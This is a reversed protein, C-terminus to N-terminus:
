FLAQDAPHDGSGPLVVDPPPEPGADNDSHSPPEPGVPGGDEVDAKAQGVPEQTKKPRGRKKKPAEPEEGFFAAPQDPEVRITMDSGIASVAQRVQQGNDPDIPLRKILRKMPAKGYMEEPWQEYTSGGSPSSKRVKMLTDHDMVYVHTTGNTMEAFAYAAIIEGRNKLAKKHEVWDRGGSGELYDFHDNEFAAGWKVKTFVGTRYLAKAIGPAGIVFVAQSKFPILSCDGQSFSLRHRAAEMAGLLLTKPNCQALKHNEHILLDTEFALRTLYGEKNQIHDPVLSMFKDKRELIAIELSRHDTSM